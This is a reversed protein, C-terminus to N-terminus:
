RKEYILQASEFVRRTVQENANPSHLYGFRTAIEARKKTLDSLESEMHVMDFLSWPAEEAFVVLLNLEDPLGERYPDDFLSAEVIKWKEFFSILDQTRVDSVSAVM